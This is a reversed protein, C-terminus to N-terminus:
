DDASWLGPKDILADTLADLQDQSAAGHISQDELRSHHAIRTLQSEAKTRARHRVTDELSTRPVLAYVLECDLAHAARQLTELRIAYETESRELQAVSSQGVGMRAALEAGTMGLADRVARIWGRHPRASLGRHTVLREDLARRGQLGTKTM